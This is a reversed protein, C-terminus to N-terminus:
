RNIIYKRMLPGVITGPAKFQSVVLDVDGGADTGWRGFGEGQIQTAVIALGHEVSVGESGIAFLLAQGV